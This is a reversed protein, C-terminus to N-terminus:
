MDFMQAVVVASVTPHPRRQRVVVVGKKRPGAMSETLFWVLPARDKFKQVLQVISFRGLDDWTVQPVTTTSHGNQTARLQTRDMPDKPDNKTLEGVQQYVKRGILQTAWSSLCPRAHRISQVEMDPSFALRTEDSQHSPQSQRHNYIRDIVMGMNYNGSGQLFAAVAAVHNPRRVDEGRPFSQFLLYLFKGISEFDNTILTIIDQIKAWENRKPERM